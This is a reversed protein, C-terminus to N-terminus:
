DDGSTSGGAQEPISSLYEAIQHIQADTYGKAQRVMIDNLNNSHKYELTAQYLSNVDKGALSPMGNVARGDTGHCQFCNAALSRGVPPQANVTLPLASVLVLSTIMMASQKM